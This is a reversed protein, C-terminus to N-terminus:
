PIDEITGQTASWEKIRALADYDGYRTRWMSLNLSSYPQSEDEFKRVLYELKARAERAADDASMPSKRDGLEVRRPEGPPTNGSLRVYVLESITAGADITEFGGASLIAATLTLQPALGIRVQKDSPPAGTKFDLVAFGDKREEIRDARAALTFTRDGGLPIQMKGRQEALIRLLGGRRTQEWGAYWNAIRLFRPWWLARAEPRDM